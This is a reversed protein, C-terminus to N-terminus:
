LGSFQVWPGGLPISVEESIVDGVVHHQQSWREVRDPECQTDTTSATASGRSGSDMLEQARM